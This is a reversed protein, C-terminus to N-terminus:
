AEAGVPRGAGVGAAAEVVALTQRACTEWSFARSRELAARELRKRLGDDILVRRTADAVADADSPDVLLAADGAIESLGNAASTVIATGCAMAETIPIPFAELNSPYLFADSLSYVAPLDAQDIWGPFLV